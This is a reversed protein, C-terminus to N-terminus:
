ILFYYKKWCSYKKLMKFVYQEFLFLGVLKLSFVLRQARWGMMMEQRHLISTASSGQLPRLVTDSSHRSAGGEEEEEPALSLKRADNAAQFQSFVAACGSRLCYLGGAMDYGCLLRGGSQPPCSAGGASGSGGWMYLKLSNGSCALIWTNFSNLDADCVTELRTVDIETHRHRCPATGAVKSFFFVNYFWRLIREQFAVAKCMASVIWLVASDEWSSLHEKFQM